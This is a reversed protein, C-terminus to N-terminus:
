LVSFASIYYKIVSQTNRGVSRARDDVGTSRQGNVGGHDVRFLLVANDSISVGANSNGPSHESGGGRCEAEQSQASNTNTQDLQFFVPKGMKGM